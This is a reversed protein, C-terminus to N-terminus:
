LISDYRILGLFLFAAVQAMTQTRFAALHDYSFLLIGWNHEKAIQQEMCDLVDFGLDRGEEFPLVYNDAHAWFFFELDKEM